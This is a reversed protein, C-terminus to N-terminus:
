SLKEQLLEEDNCKKNKISEGTQNDNLTVNEVAQLFLKELRAKRECEEKTVWQEQALRNQFVEAISLESLTTNDEKNTMLKRTQKTRRVLLVEIPKDSVLQEIRLTLDSLYQASNIEIDLWLTQKDKLKTEALIQSIEQELEKLNTKLMKMPQFCPIAIADVKNLKKSVLNNKSLDNNSLKNNAVDNTSFEAILVQKQHNAEDFSLPIPSGCYRIHESNAVKQQRHIHGLAIYDFAPFENAPFAELTGIYIDRVSETLTVGVTTLHGTAIIPLNDQAILKAHGYIEQYHHSISQQLAHQKDKSSHGAQSQMIDRPRIFPVACLVAKEEGDKNKLTIVQKSLESTVSSIVHCSLHSLLAKSEGLM